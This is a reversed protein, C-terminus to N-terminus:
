KTLVISEAECVAKFTGLKYTVVNYLKKAIHKCLPLSINRQTTEVLKSGVFYQLKYIKM